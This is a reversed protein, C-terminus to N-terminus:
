IRPALESRFRDLSWIGMAFIALLVVLEVPFWTPGACTMINAILFCGSGVLIATRNPHKPRSGASESNAAWRISAFRLTRWGILLMPITIAALDYKMIRPNLLLTGVLAVPIWREQPLKGERVRHALDLLVFGIVGAFLVYLASTGQSFPLGLSRLARGVTGAPSYGFDQGVEFMLRIAVLYERFMKPWILMQGTFMLVGAAATLGSPIWRKRDMLVPFALLSLFPAKFASAVLVAAYFWSWSGRKWGAVAAALVMGYLIYAVNGSLIVDDTVLGPFFVAVPLLLALWRREGQDAMQFGAWLQLLVGIVIAGTYFVGLAWGPFRETMRLLPLTMPSYVYVLPPRANSDAGEREQFQQLSAIGNAYPDGGQRLTQVTKWCVQSDWGVPGTFALVVVAVVVGVWFLSLVQM